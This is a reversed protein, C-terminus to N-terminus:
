DEPERVPRGGPNALREGVRRAASVWAARHTIGLSWWPLAAIGAAQAVKDANREARYVEYASRAVDSWDPEPWDIRPM